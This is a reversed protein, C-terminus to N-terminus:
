ARAGEILDVDYNFTPMKEEGRRVMVIAPYKDPMLPFERKFARWEEYEPVRTWSSAFPRTIFRYYEDRNFVIMWRSCSSIQEQFLKRKLRRIETAGDVTFLSPGSPM